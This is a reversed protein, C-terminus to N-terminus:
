EYLRRLDKLDRAKSNAGLLAATNKEVAEILREQLRLDKEQSAKLEYVQSEIRKVREPMELYARASDRPREEHSEKDPPSCDISGEPTNITGLERNIVRAEPTYFKFIPKHLPKGPGVTLIGKDQLIARVIGVIEGAEILLQDPDFGPLQGTHIIINQTTKEVRVQGIHCGLKVWNQPEGLKEWSILGNDRLVRFKLPYDEMVCSERFGRESGTLIKSGLARLEYIKPKGPKIERILGKSLFRSVWYFVGSKSFSLKKATEAQSHGEGLLRLIRVANASSVGNLEFKAWIKRSKTQVKSCNSSDKISNAISRAKRRKKLPDL